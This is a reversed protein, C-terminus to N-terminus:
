GIVQSVISAIRRRRTEAKEATFLWHLLQKKRSDTLGRYAAIAGKRRCLAKKLDPPIENTRERASAADWQGSRRAEAIKALGAETMQGQKILREVRRINSVSWISTARRPTFRLSYKQGDLSRLKGDIWGFCLAEEVAEDLSLAGERVGKKFIVLWAETLDRHHSRLWARWEDRDHFAMLNRDDIM